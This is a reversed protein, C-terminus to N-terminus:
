AGTVARVIAVMLERAIVPLILYAFYGGCLLSPVAIAASVLPRSEPFDYVDHM